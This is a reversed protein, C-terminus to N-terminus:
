QFSWYSRAYLLFTYRISYLLLLAPAISTVYPAVFTRICYHIINPLNYELRLRALPPLISYRHPDLGQIMHGRCGM